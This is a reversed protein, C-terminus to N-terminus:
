RRRREMARRLRSRTRAAIREIRRWASRARRVDQPQPPAPGYEAQVYVETLHAIDDSAPPLAAAAASRFEYATQSRSHAVGREAATHVLRRYLARIQAATGRPPLRRRAPRQRQRWRQRLREVALVRWSDVESWTDSLWALLWRTGRWRSLLARLSQRQQAYRLAAIVVLALVCGWFLLAPLLPREPTGTPIQPPQIPPLVPGSPLPDGSLWALLWAFPLLILSFLAIVVALLLTLVLLLLNVLPVLPPPPVIRLASSLLLGLLLAVGLLLWSTRRWRSPVAADVRTEQIHWGYQLQELQGQSHLLFGSVLCGLMALLPQATRWSTLAQVVSLQRVVVAASVLAVLVCSLWLRDFRALALTRDQLLMSEESSMLGASVRPPEAELDLVTQALVTTLGWTLGAALAYEIFRGGFFTLPDRLWPEALRLLPLGEALASAARVTVVLLVAEVARLTGQESLSLREQVVVRQTLTADIVVAVLLPLLWPATWQPLLTHLAAIISAVVGLALVMVLLIQWLTFRILRM